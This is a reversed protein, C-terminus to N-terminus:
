LKMDSAPFIKDSQRDKTHYDVTSHVFCTFIIKVFLLETLRSNVDVVIFDVSNWLHNNNHIAFYSDLLIRIRQALLVAYGNTVILSVIAIQRNTELTMTVM